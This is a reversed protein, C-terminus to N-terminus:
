IPMTSDNPNLCTVELHKRLQELAERYQRFVTATSVGCLDAIEELTLQGWIRAILVLRLSDDLRYIAEVAEKGLLRGAPDALYPERVSAQQEYRRRRGEARSQSIAANRVARYLWAVPQEPLPNQTVLRCFADQVADDPSPCCRGAWLRLAAAHTDILEALQIASLPM